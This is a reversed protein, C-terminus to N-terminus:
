IAPNSNRDQASFSPVQVAARNELKMGASAVTPSADNTLATIEENRLNKLNLGNNLEGENNRPNIEGDWAHLLIEPSNVM